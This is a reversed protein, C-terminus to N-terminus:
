GTTKNPEKNSVHTPQGTVFRRIADATEIPRELHPSHGAGDIIAHHAQPIRRTMDAGIATFKQDTVGTIVCTPMTLEHLRPWLSDQAGTGALRLSDALGAASNGSREAIFRYPAPIGAFLPLALWEEVFTTVGNAEIRAALAADSRIRARRDRENELGPSASILVLESVSQPRKLALHLALRGGMSYGIVVRPETFQQSIFEAQQWMTQAPGGRGHGPLDIADLSVIDALREVIPGVCRSTQAFGHLFLAPQRQQQPRNDPASM